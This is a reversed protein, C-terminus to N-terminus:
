LSSVSIQQVRQRSIGLKKGIKSFTYGNERMELILTKRKHEKSSSWNKHHIKWHCKKCLTILNDLENNLTGTKRSNDLHHVTLIRRGFNNFLKNSGCKQCTYKDRILAKYVHPYSNKTSKLHKKIKQTYRSM